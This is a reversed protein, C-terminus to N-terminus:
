LDNLSLLYSMTMIKRFRVILSTRVLEETEDKRSDGVAEVAKGLNSMSRFNFNVKSRLHIPEEKRSRVAKNLFIGM